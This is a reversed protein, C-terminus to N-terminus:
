VAEDALAEGLPSEGVAAREGGVVGSGTHALAADYRKMRMVLTSIQKIHPYNTATSQARTPNPTPRLYRNL